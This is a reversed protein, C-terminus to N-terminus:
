RRTRTTGPGGRRALRGLAAVGLLAVGASVLVVLLTRHKASGTGRDAAPAPAPSNRAASQLAREIVEAANTYDRLDPPLSDVAEEYCRLRYVRDIRGDNL